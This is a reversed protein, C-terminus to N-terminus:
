GSGHKGRARHECAGCGSLVGDLDAQDHRHGALLGRGALLDFCGHLQVLRLVAHRGPRYPMKWTHVAKGDLDILYVNGSDTQPAILTFGGGSRAPDHATVGVGRRRLTVQDVSSAKDQRKVAAQSM